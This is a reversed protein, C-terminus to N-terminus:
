TCDKRMSRSEIVLVKTLYQGTNTIKKKKIVEGKKKRSIGTFHIPM